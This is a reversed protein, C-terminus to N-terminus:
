RILTIDGSKVYWKEGYSCFYKYVYFYTGIECDNGKFKGNWPERPNTSAFVQNGWRDYIQFTVNMATASTLPKFKDNLGDGDPTFSNPFAVECCPAEFITVTDTGICGNADTVQVSYFGSLLNEIVPNTDLFSRSWQYSYPQTGGNVSVTATGSTLGFSCIIQTASIQPYVNNLPENITIITTVECGNIDRAAVTYVGATLPSFDGTYNGIGSPQLEYYYGQLLTGTVSVSISASSDALCTPQISSAETFLFTNAPLLTFSTDTVCGKADKIYVTYTGPALNSWYSNGSFAGNNIAFTYPASGGTANLSITGSPISPCVPTIVTVSTTFIPTPEGVSI